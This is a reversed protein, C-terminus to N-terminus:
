LKITLMNFIGHCSLNLIGKVLAKQIAGVSIKKLNRTYGTMQTGKRQKLDANRLPMLALIRAINKFSYGFRSKPLNGSFYRLSTEYLTGQRICPIGFKAFSLVPFSPM